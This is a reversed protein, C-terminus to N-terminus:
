CRNGHTCLAMRSGFSCCLSYRSVRRVVFGLGCGVNCATCKKRGNVAVTGRASREFKKFRDRACGARENGSGYGQRWDEARAPEKVRGVERDECRSDFQQVQAAIGTQAETVGSIM